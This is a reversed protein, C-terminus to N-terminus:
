EGKQDPDLMPYAILEPMQPQAPYPMQPLQMPYDYAGSQPYMPLGPSTGLRNLLQYTRSVIRVAANLLLLQLIDRFRIPPMANMPVTGMKQLMTFIENM